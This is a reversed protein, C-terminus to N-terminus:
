TNARRNTTGGEELNHWARQRDRETDRHTHENGKSNRHRISFAPAEDLVCPHRCRCACVQLQTSTYIEKERDGGRKRETHAEDKM